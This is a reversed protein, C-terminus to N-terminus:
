PADTLRDRIIFRQVDPPYVLVFPAVVGAPCSSVPRTWFCVEPMPQKFVIWSERACSRRTFGPPIAASDASAVIADAEVGGAGFIEGAFRTRGDFVPLIPWFGRNWTQISVVCPHRAALEAYLRFANDQFPIMMYLLPSMYPGSLVGATLLIKGFRGKHQYIGALGVGALIVLLAMAPFIYRLEKHGIICHAAIIAVAALGAVPLKRAGFWALYGVFFVAWLWDYFLNILYFVPSQATFVVDKKTGALSTNIYVNLWFSRFMQGWTFWDLVGVCFVPIAAVSVALVWRKVDRGCLFIGAVAVAPALQERVAFTLGLLFGVWSVSKLSAEGRFKEVLYIAPVLVDASLAEELPHPAMLWLDPWFAAFLGVIWAGQTGYFREGWKVACWVIPLSAFCLVIRILMLGALPNPTFWHALAMPGALLLPILWSRLGVQFEWPVFGQGFVLRHAQELYQFVEDPAYFDPFAVAIFLRVVLAAGLSV